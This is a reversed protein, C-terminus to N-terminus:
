NEKPIEESPHSETMQAAALLKMIYLPLELLYGNYSATLSLMYM